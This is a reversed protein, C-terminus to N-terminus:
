ENIMAKLEQLSMPTPTTKKSEYDEISKLIATNTIENSPVARIKKIFSIAKFFEEAFATKNESIELIYRM